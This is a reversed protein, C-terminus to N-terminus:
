LTLAQLSVRKGGDLRQTGVEEFGFRRHFAASGENPPELNYECVLVASGARRAYAIADDYLLKGCGRGRAREDVVVRDVYVFRPYRRCFWLYNPSDYSACERFALLFALVVGDDVVVRHWAAAAHLRALRERDLPSLYEVSAENLALLAGYDGTVADRIEM